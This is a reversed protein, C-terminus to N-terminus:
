LLGTVYCSISIHQNLNVYLTETKCLFCQHRAVTIRSVICYHVICYLVICYLVIIYSVICYSVILYCTVKLEVERLCLKLRVMGALGEMCCFMLMWSSDVWSMGVFDAQLKPTM